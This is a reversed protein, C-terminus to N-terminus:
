RALKEPSNEEREKEQEEKEGGESGAEKEGAEILSRVPVGDGDRMSAKEPSAKKKLRHVPNRRVWQRFYHAMAPFSFSFCYPFCVVSIPDNM